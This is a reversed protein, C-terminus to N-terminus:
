GLTVNHAKVFQRWKENEARVFAAFKEPPQIFLGLGQAELSEKRESFGRALERYLTRVISPPLGAPGFIGQWNTMEFGPVTEAISPVDPLLACRTAETMGLIRLKGQRHFPLAVSLSLVGTPCQGGVVDTVAPSAGKYPVHVMDIGAMHCLQAGALHHPTGPGSTAYALQGPNKRAYEILEAVSHVPLSPHVSLTMLPAVFSGVPTFDRVPDFPMSKFVSPNIANVAINGVLLTHGDPAAKAVVDAGINGSAGPRNETVVPQGLPTLAGAATRGIVDAPGGPPFPVILRIPQTPYAQARAAGAWTVMGAGAARLIDRRNLTM